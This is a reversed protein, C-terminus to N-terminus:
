LEDHHTQGAPAAPPEEAEESDPAKSDDYESLQTMFAELDERTMGELMKEFELKEEASMPGDDETGEQEEKVAGEDDVGLGALPDEDEEADADIQQAGPDEWNESPLVWRSRDRVCQSVSARTQVLPYHSRTDPETAPAHPAFHSFYYALCHERQTFHDLKPAVSGDADPSTSAAEEARNWIGPVNITRM